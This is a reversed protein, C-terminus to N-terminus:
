ESYLAKDDHYQYKEKKAKAQNQGGSIQGQAQVRELESLKKQVESLLDPNKKSADLMAPGDIGFVSKLLTISTAIKQTSWASTDKGTEHPLM